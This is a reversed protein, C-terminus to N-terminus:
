KSLVMVMEPINSNSERSAFNIRGSSDEDSKM